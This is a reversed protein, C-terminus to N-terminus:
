SVRPGDRDAVAITALAMTAAWGERTSKMLARFDCIRWLAFEDLGCCGNENRMRATEQPRTSAGNREERERGEREWEKRRGRGGERERERTIHAVYM